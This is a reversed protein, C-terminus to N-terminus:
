NQPTNGDVSVGPGDHSTGADDPVATPPPGGPNTGRESEVGSHM